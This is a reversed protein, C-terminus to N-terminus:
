KKRKNKDSSHFVTLGAINRDFGSLDKEFYVFHMGEIDSPEDRTM